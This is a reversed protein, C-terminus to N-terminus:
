EKLHKTIENAFTELDSDIKASEKLMHRNKVLFREFMGKIEVIEDSTENILSKLQSFIEYFGLKDNDSRAAEIIGYIQIYGLYMVQQDIEELSTSNEQIFKELEYPLAKTKTNYIVVLKYLIKIREDFDEQIQKQMERLFYTLMEIQLSIYSIYCIFKDLSGSFSQITEYIKSIFKENEKANLRIDSALVSFVEGNIDQKYSAISANLSLFVIDRALIQLIHAKEEFFLKTKRLFDINEFLKTYDQSLEESLRCLTSVFIDNTLIKQKDEQLNKKRSLLEALLVEKMFQDYNQYGLGNLLETFLVESEQINIKTESMLLRFYLERVKSFHQTMPKIRISIYHNKLPFVVAFVWYYDGHKTKNKVYAAVPKDSKLYDWFIKFIVRPMDQHRIINHPKDLLEKKGYGSIRFFTDNGLLITGERDTISFFLEDLEFHAEAM